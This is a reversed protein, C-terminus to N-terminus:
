GHNIWQSLEYNMPWTPHSLTVLSVDRLDTEEEKGKEEGEAGEGELRQDGVGQSRLRCSTFRKTLKAESGIIIIVM